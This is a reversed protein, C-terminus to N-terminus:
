NETDITFGTIIGLKIVINYDDYIKVLQQNSTSLSTKLFLYEAKLIHDLRTRDIMIDTIKNVPETVRYDPAGGMAAGPLVNNDTTILSDLISYDRDAFYIQAAVDVPFGNTLNMRFLLYEIEQPNENFDLVITDELTFNDIAGFLEFELDVDISLASENLVFNQITTDGDFNTLGTLDYYLYQPSINFAQAFNANTFDVISEASQGLQSIDPSNVAFINPIGPGFLNIDVHYPPTLDTEVYLADILFTVPAGISNTVHFSLNVSGAGINIGGTIADEFIGIKLSDKFQLEYQSFYGFARDFELSKLEGGVIFDYPSLDPNGDGKIIIDISFDLTNKLPDGPENLIIKYKSLNYSAEFYVWDSQGGVNDLDAYITLPEGTEIHKIDAVTLQLTADDHNLNTRGNINLIGNSLFISDVRQGVTDAIFQYNESINQTFWGGIPIAPLDFSNPFEFGQDPFNIFNGAAASILNQSNYVFSLSQDPNTVINLNSSDAMFDSIYVTSNVLPVAFEPNWTPKVIRSFDFDDKLKDCSIIIFTLALLWHWAFKIHRKADSGFFYNNKM